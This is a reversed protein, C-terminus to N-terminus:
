TQVYEKETNAEVVSIYTLGENMGGGLKFTMFGSGSVKFASSTLCGEQKEEFKGFFYEGSKGENEEQSLGQESFAEGNMEWDTLDGTEFDGNKVQYVIEEEQASSDETESSDDVSSSTDQVSESQSSTDVSSDDQKNERCASLGGVTSVVTLCALMSILLKKIKKM